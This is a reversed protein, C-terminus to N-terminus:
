RIQTLSREREDRRLSEAPLLVSAMNWNSTELLCPSTEGGGRNLFVPLEHVITEIGERTERLQPLSGIVPERVDALGLRGAADSAGVFEDFRDLSSTLL